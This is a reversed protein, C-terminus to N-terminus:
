PANKQVICNGGASLLRECLANAELRSQRGVMASFRMRNGFSPNRASILMLMESGLVSSFNAQAAAFRSRALDASANQAILVGWPQWEAPSTTLDPSRVSLAMEICAAQFDTEKDLTFDVEDVVGALWQDVPHGTIILVYNRTEAPLAGGGNAVYRSIRGEGGNYAAAALGLNGFKQELFHLYEASRALAEAPDFPDILGRLRGTLPMFQAVGQAGAPSLAAPDFRSEQWILRAFYGAPLNWYSSYAAIAACVDARYSNEAICIDARDLAHCKSGEQAQALPVPVWIITQFLVMWSTMLIRFIPWMGVHQRVPQLVALRPEMAIPRSERKLGWIDEKTQELNLVPGRGLCSRPRRSM